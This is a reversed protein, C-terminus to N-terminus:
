LGRAVRRLEITVAEDIERVNGNHNFAVGYDSKASAESVFGNNVDQLVQKPARELPDGYGGGGGTAATWVMSDEIDSEGANDLKELVAGSAQDEIWHDACAGAQGGALGFIECTHGSGCYSIHMTHDLPQIRQVLGVAGRFKGSGGSDIVPSVDHIRLPRAMELLEISEYSM